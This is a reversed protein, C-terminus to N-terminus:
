LSHVCLISVEFNFVVQESKFNLKGFRPGIELLRGGDLKVTFKYNLQWKTM